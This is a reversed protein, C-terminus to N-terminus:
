VNQKRIEDLADLASRIMQYRQSISGDVSKLWSLKIGLWPIDAAENIASRALKETLLSSPDGFVHRESKRFPHHADIWAPGFIGEQDSAGSFILGKLYGSERAMSIHEVVREANRLEIASRGWNIFVGVDAGSLRVAELEEGMSLFGKEPVQGEVWADCHEIVLAAGDWNWSAIEELSKALINVDGVRRPATHIEVVSVVKRQRADNFNRIADNIERLDSLARERGSKDKSAVGYNSSTSMRSMVFPIDTIVASFPHPFNRYLWSNDHPHISGLWPLELAGVRTDTSLTEFFEHELAPNWNSHAPSAPYAGVVYTRAREQFSHM